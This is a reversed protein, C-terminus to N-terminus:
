TNPSLSLAGLLLGTNKEEQLHSAVLRSNRPLPMTSTAARNAAMPLVCSLGPVAPKEMEQARWTVWHPFLVMSAEILLLQM